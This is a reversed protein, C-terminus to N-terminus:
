VGLTERRASAGAALFRPRYDEASEFVFPFALGKRVLELSIFTKREAREDSAYLFGLVRERKDIMERDLEVM